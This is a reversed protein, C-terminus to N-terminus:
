GTPDDPTEIQVCDLEFDLLGQADQIYMVDEDRKLQQGKVLKVQGLDGAKFAAMAISDPTSALLRVEGGGPLLIRANATPLQDPCPPCECSAGCNSSVSWIDLASNYHYSCTGCGSATGQTTM